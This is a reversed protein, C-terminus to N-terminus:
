YCEGWNSLLLALDSGNVVGDGNLDATSAGGASGWQILLAALDAGNVMGDGTLDPECPLQFVNPQIEDPGIPTNNMILERLTLQELWPLLDALEPDNEYWFRDASRLRRFQDILIVQVTESVSSGNLLDEALMGVWADIDDVNGYTAELAGAVKPDSSIADFSTKRELGFAERVSNYDALGHDRGRQINIAALDLAAPEGMGPANFLFNRMDDVMRADTKQEQGAALGRLVPEIGGENVILEPHFYGDLVEINGQPIPDGDAGLRLFVTGVQSHGMRFAATAFVNSLSPDVSPDYGEYPGIVDGGMMTPLYENYTIAQMEAGVIRRVRQYVQEDTWNPHEGAVSDALRNHERVMLTHLSQLTLHVNSRVDGAVFFDTTNGFTNAQSGDNFPLLPGFASRSTKMRGGVFTRLWAARTPDSGYVGSADIWTSIVNVQERPNTADTGTAPDFVSRRFPFFAFADGDPDFWFDGPPIPIAAFQSSDDPTFDTDHAVFQGWAWVFDTLGRPDPIFVSNLMTDQTFIDNSVVRPNPRTEGGLTAVGDGYMAPAARKLQTNTQGWNPQNLNNGGGDISRPEPDVEGAALKLNSGLAGVILAVLAGRSLRNNM